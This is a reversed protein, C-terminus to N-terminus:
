DFWEPNSDKLIEILEKDSLKLDSDSTYFFIEEDVQEAEKDAFGDCEDTIDYPILEDLLSTGAIILEEGEKDKVIRCSFNEGKYNNETTIM